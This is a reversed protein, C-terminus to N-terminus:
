AALEDGHSDPEETIDNPELGESSANDYETDDEIDPSIEIESFATPQNFITPEDELDPQDLYDINASTDTDTKVELSSSASSNGTSAGETIAPPSETSETERWPLRAIGPAIVNNRKNIKRVDSGHESFTAAIHEHCTFFLVQGVEASFRQIARIANESRESDCNVLVDDLILPLNVGEEKYARVLAFRLSLFIAERTGRSLSDITWSQCQDDDVYLLDDGLPTWIRVYAGATIEELWLSANRLTEPQRQTEYTKRVINFINETTAWVRWQREYHRRNATDVRQQLRIQNASWDTSYRELEHKLGGITEHHRNVLERQIEIENDIQHWRAEVEEENKGLYVSLDDLSCQYSELGANITHELDMLTQQKDRHRKALTAALHYTHLDTQGANSYIQVLESRNNGLNDIVREQELQNSRIQNNLQVLDGRIHEEESIVRGIAELREIITLGTADVDLEVFLHQIRSELLRLEESRRRRRAQDNQVRRSDVALEDATEVLRYLETPTLEFPIGANALDSQWKQEVETQRETLHAKRAIATDLKANLTELRVAQNLLTNVWDIQEKLQATSNSGFELGTDDALDNELNQNQHNLLEVQRQRKSVRRNFSRSEKVHTGVSIAISTIGSLCVVARAIGELGFQSPYFMSMGLLSGGVSFLLANICLATPSPQKCDKASIATSHKIALHVEEAKSALANQRRLHELKQRLIFSPRAPEPVLRLSTWASSELWTEELTALEETIASIKLKTERLLRTNDKLEKTVGRLQRLLSHSLLSIDFDAPLGMALASNDRPISSSISSADSDLEDVLSQIWPAMEQIARLRPLLDSSIRSEALADRDHALQLATMELHSQELVLSQGALALQITHALHEENRLIHYLGATTNETLWSRTSDALDLTDHLQLYAQIAARENELNSIREMAQSISAQTTDLLNQSVVWENVQAESRVLLRYTDESQKILTPLKSEDSSGYLSERTATVRRLVEGLCARDFGATMDYLYSAADTANLQHLQQLEGLGITFVNAFVTPGIGKMLDRRLSSIPFMQGNIEVSASETSDYSRRITWHNGETDIAKLTGGYTGAAGKLYKGREGSALGFFLGRLFEMTTTKGAENPGYVVLTPSELDQFSQDVCIGYRDIKIETIQM